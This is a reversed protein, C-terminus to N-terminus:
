MTVLGVSELPPNLVWRGTSLIGLFAYGGKIWGRSGAQRERDKGGHGKNMGELRNGERRM